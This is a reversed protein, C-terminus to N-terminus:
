AAGLVSALARLPFIAVARCPCGDGGELRPPLASLFFDEEVEELRLLNELLIINRGLLIQHNPNPKGMVMDKKSDVNPFDSGILHLAPLRALFAAADRTLFPGDTFYEKTGWTRKAWGTDVILKETTELGPIQEFDRQDLPTHQDKNPIRVIRAVGILFEPPIRDVTWGDPIAHFPADIHTSVHTGFTLVHASRGEKEHTAAPTVQVDPLYPSPYRPMASALPLSIDIVKM